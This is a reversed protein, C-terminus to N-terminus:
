EDLYVMVAFLVWLGLPILMWWGFEIIFAVLGFLAFAVFVSAFTLVLGVGMAKFIKGMM